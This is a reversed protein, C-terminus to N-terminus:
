HCDVPGGLPQFAHGAVVVVAVVVDVAAYCSYPFEGAVVVVDFAVVDGSM